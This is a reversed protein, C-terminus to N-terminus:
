LSELRFPMESGQARPGQQEAREQLGKVVQPRLSKTPDVKVFKDTYMDRCLETVHGLYERPRLPQNSIYKVHLLKEEATDLSKQLRQTYEGGLKERLYDHLAQLRSTMSAGIMAEGTIQIEDWDNGNKWPIKMEFQGNREPFEACTKDVALVLYRDTATIGTVKEEWGGGWNKFVINIEGPAARCLVDKFDSLIGVSEDTMEHDLDWHRADLVADVKVILPDGGEYAGAAGHAYMHAVEEDFSFYVGPRQGCRDLNTRASLLGKNFVSTLSSYDKGTSTGHWLTVKKMCGRLFRADHPYSM